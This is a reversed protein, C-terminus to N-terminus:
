LRKKNTVLKLKCHIPIVEMVRTTSTIVSIVAVPSFENEANAASTPYVTMTNVIM